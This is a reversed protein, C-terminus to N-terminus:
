PDCHCIRISDFTECAATCSLSAVIGATDRSGVWRSGGRGTPRIIDTHSKVDSNVKAVLLWLRWLMLSDNRVGSTIKMANLLLMYGQFLYLLFMHDECLRTKLLQCIQKFWLPNVTWVIPIMEVRDIM